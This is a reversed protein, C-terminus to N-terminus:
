KTVEGKVKDYLEIMHTAVRLGERYGRENETAPSNSDVEEIMENLQNILIKM